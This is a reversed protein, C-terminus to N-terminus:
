GGAAKLLSDVGQQGTRGQVPAAPADDHRRQVAVLRQDGDVCFPEEHRGRRQLDDRQGGSRLLEAPIEPVRGAHEHGARLLARAQVAIQHDDPASIGRQIVPVTGGAAYEM